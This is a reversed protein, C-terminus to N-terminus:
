VETLLIQDIAISQNEAKNNYIMIKLAKEGELELPIVLSVRGENYKEGLYEQKYIVKDGQLIEIKNPLTFRHRQQYLFDIVLQKEGHVGKLDVELDITDGNQIFWGIHYDKTHGILGDSLLSLRPDVATNFLSFSSQQLYNPKKSNDLIEYWFQIYDKISGQSEKYNLIGLAEAKELQAIDIRLQREMLPDLLGPNQQLEVYKLQLKTFTLSVLLAELKQRELEDAREMCAELSTTFDLFEEKQLYSEVNSAMGGYMDYPTQKRNYNKELGLYYNTLVSSSVPYFKKFYAGVLSDVDLTTDKLLASIVYTQVDHFSSYDYGGANFFVGTVGLSKFYALQRKISYLVPIPTLYDDFNASYDWLYIETTKTKWQEVLAKFDQTAKQWTASNLDVGKPLDITSIFVGTNKALKEKPLTKTTLYSGMFFSHWTFDQAINNVLYAVASTASKATNGLEVCRECLCVVANDQPMIVFNSQNDADGFGQNDIIYERLLLHNQESSFCLQATNEQGDVQAYVVKDSDVSQLAKLLNHGWIGWDIEVNNNGFVGSNDIQLNSLYYPEKYSFDFSKCGSSFDVISPPLFDANLRSDKQAIKQILEYSMWIAIRSSKVSISLTNDERSICYTEKLLPDVRLYINLDRKDNGSDKDLLTIVSKQTSLKTFHNYFYNAWKESQQDPHYGVVYHEAHLEIPQKGQCGVSIFCLAVILIKCFKFLLM